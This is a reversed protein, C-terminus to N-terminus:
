SVTPAWPLMSMTLTLPVATVTAQATRGTRLVLRRRPRRALAAAATFNFEETLAKVNELERRFAEPAPTRELEAIFGASADVDGTDLQAALEELLLRRAETEPAASPTAPAEPSAPKPPPTPRPPPPLTDLAAFVRDAEQALETFFTEYNGTQAKLALELDEGIAPPKRDVPQRGGRGAFPRPPPRHRRRRGRASGAPREPHPARHHPLPRAHGPHVRHASRAPALRRRSGRGPSGAM